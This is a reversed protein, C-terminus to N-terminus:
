KTMFEDIIFEGSICCTGIACLIFPLAELAIRTGASGFELLCIVCELYSQCRASRVGTDQGEIKTAPRLPELAAGEHVRAMVLRSPLVFQRLASQCFRRAFLPALSAVLRHM